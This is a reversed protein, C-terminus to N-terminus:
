IKDSFYKNGSVHLNLVIQGCPPYISKKFEPLIVSFREALFTEYISIYDTKYIFIM